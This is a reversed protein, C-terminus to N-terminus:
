VMHRCTSGLLCNHWLWIDMASSSAVRLRTQQTAEHAGAAPVLLGSSDSSSDSSSDLSNDSSTRVKGGLYVYGAQIAAYSFPSHYKADSARM